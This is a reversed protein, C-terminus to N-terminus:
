SPSVSEKSVISMASCHGGMGKVQGDRPWYGATGPGRRGDGGIVSNFGRRPWGCHGKEGEDGAM